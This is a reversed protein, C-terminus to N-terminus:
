GIWRKFKAIRTLNSYIIRIKCLLGFGQPMRLVAYDHGFPKYKMKKLAKTIENIVIIIIIIQKNIKINKKIKGFARLKFIFSTPLFSLSM